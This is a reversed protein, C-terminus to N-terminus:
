MKKTGLKMPGGTLKSARRAELEKQRQLKREERKKRAEELRSSAAGTEELAEFETNEWSQTRNTSEEKTEDGWSHSSTSKVGATDDLPVFDSTGWGEGPCSEAVPDEELNGWEESDWGDTGKRERTGPLPSKPELMTSPPSAPTEMEGWNETDWTDDYDSVSDAGKSEEQELSTMSTVSSTTTSISSSSPQELSGPKSLTRSTVPTISKVTDSQSRYFKSTVATVAWGAWTAAANSLSPTSTHVDAEMSERLTPDESVKELKGLYGKIARFVNDRM